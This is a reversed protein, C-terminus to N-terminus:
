EVYKAARPNSRDGDILFRNDVEFKTTAEDDLVQLHETGAQVVVPNDSDEFFSAILDYIFKSTSGAKASVMIWFGGIYNASDMADRPIGRFDLVERIFRDQGGTDWSIVKAYGINPITITLKNIVDQIASKISEATGIIDDVRSSYADVLNSLTDTKDILSDAIQNIWSKTFQRVEELEPLFTSATGGVWTGDGFSAIANTAVAEYAIRDPIIVKNSDEAIPAYNIDEPPDPNIAAADTGFWKSINLEESLAQLVSQTVKLKITFSYEQNFDTALNYHITTDSISAANGVNANPRLPDFDPGSSIVEAHKKADATNNFQISNIKKSAGSNDVVFEVKEGIRKNTVLDKVSMEIHIKHPYDYKDWVLRVPPPNHLKTPILRLILNITDPETQPEIDTKTPLSLFALLKNIGELIEDPTPSLFLLSIGGIYSDNSINPVTSPERNRRNFSDKFFAMLEQTTGKALLNGFYSDQKPITAAYETATVDTRKWNDPIQIIPPIQVGQKFAALNIPTKYMAWIDADGTLGDVIGVVENRMADIVSSIPSIYGQIASSLSKILELVLLIPEFVASIGDNVIGVADYLGDLFKPQNLNASNYRIEGPAPLGAVSGASDPTNRDKHEDELFVLDREGDIPNPVPYTTKAM